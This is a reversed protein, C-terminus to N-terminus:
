GPWTTAPSENIRRKETQRHIRSSNPDPDVPDIPPMAGSGSGEASDHLITEPSMPHEEEDKGFFEKISEWARHRLNNKDSWDFRKAEAM